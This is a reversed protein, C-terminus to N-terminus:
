VDGQDTLDWRDYVLLEPHDTPDSQYIRKLIRYDGGLPYTSTGDRAIWWEQNELGSFIEMKLDEESPTVFVLNFLVLGDVEKTTLELRYLPHGEPIAEAHWLADDYTKFAVLENLNVGLQVLEDYTVPVSNPPEDKKIELIYM